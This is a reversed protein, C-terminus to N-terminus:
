AKEEQETQGPYERLNVKAVAWPRPVGFRRLVLEESPRVARVRLVRVQMTGVGANLATWGRAMIMALGANHAPQMKYGTVLLDGAEWELMVEWTKM